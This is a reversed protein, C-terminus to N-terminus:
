QQAAAAIHELVQKMEFPKHLVPVAVGDLFASLKPGLAGGTIFVFRRALAPDRAAVQEYLDQGNMEPMMLDCVVVDVAPGAELVAAAERGHEAVVVDHHRALAVSLVRRVLAEDDVVLVRLRPTEAPADAAIPMPMMLPEGRYVPVIVRVTTGRATAPDLEIRGGAQEIISRCVSLGLGTGEGLAKTTFFPEFVRERLEPPIGEGTDTITVAVEDAGYPGVDVRIEHRSPDSEPLAQSANILLNLFVQEFRSATGRVSSVARVERVVRARHRLDNDVLKLARDVCGVLDVPGAPSEDSRAFARLDRVITAVRDVGHRANRLQELLRDRVDGAIAGPLERELYQLCLQVYTLPNNIEHAVAASLMGISALREARQLEREIRKRATIDRAFALVAPAGEREIMISKIEVVRDPSRKVRYELPEFTAGTALMRGIREVAVAADEPPLHETILTGLGSAPDPLGLLEAALENMFAIRGRELIVVGDPAGEVVRRFRAESRRLTEVAALRASIDRVFAVNMAVGDIVIRTMAFEVPVRTGDPRLVVSEFSTPPAAGRGRAVLREREAAIAEPAIVGWPSSGELEARTRGFIAAAAESAYLVIDPETIRLVSVGIELREAADVVARLLTAQDLAGLDAPLEAMRSRCYM